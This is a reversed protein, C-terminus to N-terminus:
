VAAHRHPRPRCAFIHQGYGEFGIRRAITLSPVNTTLARYRILGAEPLWDAVMTGAVQTALGRRRHDPHTLLGVDAPSGRWDTLNGAAVLVGDVSLGYFACRAPDDTSPEMPFGAERWQAVGCENRLAVLRRDAPDLREVDQADLGSFSLRDVYGHWSPGHVEADAGALALATTRNFVADPDLSAVAASTGDVHEQEVVVVCAPGLRLLVVGDDGNGAAVVKVESQHLEDAPLGLAGSWYADVEDQVAAEMGDDDCAPSRAPKRGPKLVAEPAWSRPYARRPCWTLRDRRSPM